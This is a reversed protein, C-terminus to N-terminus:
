TRGYIETLRALKKVRAPTIQNTSMRWTWNGRGAAPRNMRAERGLSLIDQMPIISLGAVSSMAIRILQWSIQTPTVKRGLYRFLNKREVTGTEKEFWGKTTNNDHTGTYVVCNKIHNHPAYPSKACDPGFAFQLVKMCTLQYRNVIQRVDPSIYGLDEVIIPPFPFHKFLVDFFAERPGPVWKGAVATKHQAPVQWYAIFARFHDIRVVDFLRLNHAIRQMWWRYGTNKLKQWDYIPNKWLQGTRSFFDPPVGAVVRPKKARTLKFIGPHAWLDASDYAVYIPIDGIIHIGKSNCYRKLAFWQQFFIYQLFKERDISQQLSTVADELARPKRDRYKAPWHCWLASRFRRRLAVFTAFDELWQQNEQCFHRYDAQEPNSKFRNFAKNLLGEKHRAVQSYQVHAKPFAPINRIDAKALLGQQYLLEPSILMPNGAFASLCNYPCQRARVAPPNLPLIQWYGQGARTLFDAFKCAQPGLDGIGYESPLCTIHLLVGSARNQLM